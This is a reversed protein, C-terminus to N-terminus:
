RIPQGNKNGPRSGAGALFDKEVKSIPPRTPNGYHNPHGGPMKRNLFFVLIIYTFSFATPTCRNLAVTLPSEPTPRREEGGL